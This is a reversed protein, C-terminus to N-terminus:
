STSLPDEFAFVRGDVRGDRPLSAGFSAVGCREGLRVEGREDDGDVPGVNADRVRAIASRDISAARSLDISVTLAREESEFAWLQHADAWGPGSAEAAGRVIEESPALAVTPQPLRFGLTRHAVWRRGDIEVEELGERDSPLLLLPARDPVQMSVFAIWAVAIAAAGAHLALGLRRRGTRALLLGGGGAIAVVGALMRSAALASEAAAGPPLADALSAGIALVVVGATAGLTAALWALRV